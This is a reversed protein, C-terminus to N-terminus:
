ANGYVYEEVIQKVKLRRGTINMECNFDPILNVWHLFEDRDIIYRYENKIKLKKKAKVQAKFYNIITHPNSGWTINGLRIITYNNFLLKVLGEMERKHRAYRTNSYFVALSSFYVLRKNRNQDFLMNYERKYEEENKELSNSVGSAFYTIKKKDKLVSAIDGNGVIM